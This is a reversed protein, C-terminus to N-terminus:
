VSVITPLTLHTYSVTTKTVEDPKGYKKILGEAFSKADDHKWNKLSDVAEMEESITQQIIAVQEIASKLSM